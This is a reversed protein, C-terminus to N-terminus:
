CPKRFGYASNDAGIPRAAVQMGPNASFCDAVPTPMGSLGSFDPAVVFSTCCDPDAFAKRWHASPQASILAAVESVCAAPDANAGRLEDALGIAECFRRWFKEEIAAVAVLDGDATAYLRYRPSAGTALMGGNSPPSGTALTHAIAHPMLPRLLDTMPIEICQGLGTRRRQELALLINITAPYAGAAIDAILAPPVTPHGVTGFSLSLLGSDALYNLDHGARLADPGTPRYGTISCYILGRNRQALSSPGLGLREMTGPRFGEILIDAGDILGLVLDREPLNKLDASLLTKGANLMSFLVGVGESFPEQYRQADGAPPEIKLVDAGARALMLTCLPGPLHQSLDVVKVGSLPAAAGHGTLAM